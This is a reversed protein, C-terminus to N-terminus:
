KTKTATVAREGERVLALVRFAMDVTILLPILFFPVYSVLLLLQQQVTISAINAAITEASTIPANLIVAVCPLTTTATSAGYILLLVYISRSGIAFSILM